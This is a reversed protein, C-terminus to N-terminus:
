KTVIKVRESKDNYINCEIKPLEIIKKLAYNEASKLDDFVTFPIVPNLNRAGASDVIIGTNVEALVIYYQGSKVKIMIVKQNRFM